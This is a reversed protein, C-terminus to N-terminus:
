SLGTGAVIGREVGIERFRALLFEETDTGPLPAALQGLLAATAKMQRLFRRCHRCMTVHMMFQLRAAGRLRREMHETTLETIEACSLV